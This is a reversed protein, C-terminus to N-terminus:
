KKVCAEGAKIKSGKLQKWIYGRKQSLLDYHFVAGLLITKCDRLRVLSTLEGNEFHSDLSAAVPGNGGRGNKDQKRKYKYKEM